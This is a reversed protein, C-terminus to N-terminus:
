YSISNYLYINDLSNQGVNQGVDSRRHPQKTILLDATRTRAGRRTGSVDVGPARGVPNALRRQRTNLERHSSFSCEVWGFFFEGSEIRSHGEPFNSGMIANSFCDYVFAEFFVTDGSRPFRALRSRLRM